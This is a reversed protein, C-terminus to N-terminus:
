LKHANVNSKSSHENWLDAKNEEGNCKAPKLSQDQQKLKTLVEEFNLPTHISSLLVHPYKSSLLVMAPEYQERSVGALLFFRSM